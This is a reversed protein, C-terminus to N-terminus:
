WATLTRLSRTLSIVVILVLMASQNCTLIRSHSLAGGDNKSLAALVDQDVLVAMLMSASLQRAPFVCPQLLRRVLGESAQAFVVALHRPRM